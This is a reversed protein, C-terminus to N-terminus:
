DTASVPIRGVNKSVILKIPKVCKVSPLRSYLMIIVREFPSSKCLDIGTIAKLCLICSVATTCGM